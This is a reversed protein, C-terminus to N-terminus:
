TRVTEATNGRIPGAAPLYARLAEFLAAYITVTAAPPEGVTLRMAKQWYLRAEECKTIADWPILLPSYRSLAPRPWLYLGAPSIVVTTCFRYRVPGIQVTQRTSKIGEPEAGAPYREALRFLGGAKAFLLMAIFVLFVACAALVMLFFLITGLVQM